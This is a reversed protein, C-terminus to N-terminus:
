QGELTEWISEALTRIPSKLSSTVKVVQSYLLLHYKTVNVHLM